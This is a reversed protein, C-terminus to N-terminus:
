MNEELPQLTIVSQSGGAGALSYVSASTADRMTILSIKFVGNIGNFVGLTANKNKVGPERGKSFSHSLNKSTVKQIQKNNSQEM